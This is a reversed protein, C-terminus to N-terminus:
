RDCHDAEGEGGEGEGGEGGGRVGGGLRVGGFDDVEPGGAVGAAPGGRSVLDIDVVVVADGADFIDAFGGEGVEGGVGAIGGVGGHDDGGAAAVRDEGDVVFAVGDGFVEGGLADVGEDEFVAQRSFALVLDAM